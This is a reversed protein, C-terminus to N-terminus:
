MVLNAGCLARLNTVQSLKVKIFPDHEVTYHTVVCAWLGPLHIKETLFSANQVWIRKDIIVFRKISLAPWPNETTVDYAGWDHLRM